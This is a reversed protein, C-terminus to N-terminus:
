TIRDDDLTAVVLDINLTWPATRKHLVVFLWMVVCRAMDGEKISEKKRVLM